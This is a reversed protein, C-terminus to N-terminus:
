ADIEQPQITAKKWQYIKILAWYILFTSLVAPLMKANSSAIDIVSSFMLSGGIAIGIVRHKFANFLWCYCRGVLLGFIAIPLFMGFYGFDIYSEGLYGIGISTGQEAGAVSIGSFENTRDSDNFVKKGPFFIRPMLASSVAEGWLRGKSHPINGPVQRLCLGFFITYEIRRVTNIAAQQITSSDITDFANTLFSIQEVTSVKVTQDTEGQNVYDRYDGKIAQWFLGVSLFSVITTTLVTIISRRQQVLSGAALVLLYFVTKFSGFFGLFGIFTEAGLVGLLLLWGQNRSIVSQFLLLAAAYRLVSLPNWVIALGLERFTSSLTFNTFM